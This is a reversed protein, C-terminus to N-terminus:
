GRSTNELVAKKGTLKEWRQVIVDCYGPDIELGYCHRGTLEAAILTTGSGLFPDYVSDGKLTHNLIPRRMLEVPKQTGHGTREEERNGTPNLNQVDWVTSQKSDGHWSAQANTRVAYWCPEHQWHYHSRGFLAQQKRWIIVARIEFGCAKVATGAEITKTSAHWIYVVAGPFHAYADRWDARSDNAVRGTQVLKSGFGSQETKERVSPDYEIGYPQDTVMLGPKSDALAQKVDQVKTADGCLLRHGGMLWLDGPKTVPVDPVPPVDDEAPNVALTLQDIERSDFGTLTLNFELKKLEVFELALADLDWDAWNVSRNVMLRFAKVQADSWGDCFIAPLETFKKTKLAAKLRLHGDIVDGTSRTLMPVTFGFESISAVMRDVAGDNKRPNREYPKFWDVPRYVVELHPTEPKKRRGAGIPRPQGKVFAM